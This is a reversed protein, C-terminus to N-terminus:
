GAIDVAFSIIRWATLRSCGYRERVVRNLASPKAGSRIQEIVFAMCRAKDLIRPNVVHLAFVIDADNM